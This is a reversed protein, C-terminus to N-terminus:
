GVIMSPIGWFDRRITFSFCCNIYVEEGDTGEAGAARRRSAAKLQSPTAGGSPIAGPQLAPLNPKFRLVCSTLVAKQKADFAVHGYKEWYNVASSESMLEYICLRGRFKPRLVSIPQLIAQRSEPSCNREMWRSLRAYGKVYNYPKLLGAEYKARIVSKLREDRTGSEQDAATLLFRETKTSPPLPDVHEHEHHPQPHQQTPTKQPSQQMQLQPSTQQSSPSLASTLTMLSQPTPKGQSLSDATSLGFVPTSASLTTSGTQQPQQPQQTNITLPTATSSLLSGTPNTVSPSSANFWANHNDLNELFDSLIAFEGSTGGPAETQFISTPDPSILPWPATPNVGAGPGAIGAAGTIFPTSGAGSTRSRYALLYKTLEWGRRGSCHLHHAFFRSGGANYVGMSDIKM